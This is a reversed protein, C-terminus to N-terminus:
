PEPVRRMFHFLYRLAGFAIAVVIVAVALAEIGLVAIEVLERTAEVIGGPVM